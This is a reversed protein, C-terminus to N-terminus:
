ATDLEELNKSPADVRVVVPSCFFGDVTPHADSEKVFVRPSLFLRTLPNVRTEM